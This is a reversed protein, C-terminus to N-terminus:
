KNLEKIIQDAMRVCQTSWEDYSEQTQQKGVYEKPPSICQMAIGIYYERKTLGKIIRKTLGKIITKKRKGNNYIKCM